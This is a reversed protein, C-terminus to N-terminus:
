TVFDPMWDNFALLIQYLIARYVQSRSAEPVIQPEILVFGVKFLAALNKNLSPGNPYLQIFLENLAPFLAKDDPEHAQAFCYSIEGAINYFSSNFVRCHELYKHEEATKAPPFVEQQIMFSDRLNKEVHMVVSEHYVPFYLEIPVDNFVELTTPTTRLDVMYEISADMERATWLARLMMPMLIDVTMRRYLLSNRTRPTMIYLYAFCMADRNLKDPAIPALSAVIQDTVGQVEAPTKPDSDMAAQIQTDFTGIRTLNTTVYDPVDLNGIGAIKCFMNTMMNTFANDFRVGYPMRRDSDPPSRDLINQMADVFSHELQLSPRTALDWTNSATSWWILSDYDAQTPLPESLAAHVQISVAENNIAIGFCIILSPEFMIAPNKFTQKQAASLQRFDLVALELNRRGDRQRTETVDVLPTVAQVAKDALDIFQESQALFDDHDKTTLDKAALVDANFVRGATLWATCAAAHAKTHAVADILPQLLDTWAVIIQANANTVDYIPGKLYVFNCAADLVGDYCQNAAKSLTNVIERTAEHILGLDRCTERATTCALLSATIKSLLALNDPNDKFMKKKDAETPSVTIAQQMSMSTSVHEKSVDELRREAKLTNLIAKDEELDQKSKHETHIENGSGSPNNRTSAVYGIAFLACVNAVVYPVVADMTLSVVVISM